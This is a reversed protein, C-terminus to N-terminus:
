KIEDSYHHLIVVVFGVLCFFGYAMEPGDTWELSNFGAPIAVFLYTFAMWILLKMICDLYKM